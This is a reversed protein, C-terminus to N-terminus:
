SARNIYGPRSTPSPTYGTLTKAKRHRAQRATVRGTLGLQIAAPLTLNVGYGVLGLLPFPAQPLMRKGTDERQRKAGRDAQFFLDNGAFEANPTTRTLSARRSKHAVTSM